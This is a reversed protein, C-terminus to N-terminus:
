LHFIICNIAFFQVDFLWLLFESADPATHHPEARHTLYQFLYGRFRMSNLYVVIVTPLMRM